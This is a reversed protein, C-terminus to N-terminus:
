CFVNDDFYNFICNHYYLATDLDIPTFNHCDAGVNIGFSKIMSLKHVHGFLNVNVRDIYQKNTNIYNMPEHTMSINFIIGNREIPVTVIDDSYVLNFYRNLEDNTLHRSYNGKILRIDGNLFTTYNFDGFDGLVFVTDNKSVANNWNNVLTKNMEIVNKFPRKSLILTREQNFHCDSTFFYAM